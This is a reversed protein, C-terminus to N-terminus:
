KLRVVWGVHEDAAKKHLAIARSKDGLAVYILSLEWPSVFSSTDNQQLRRLIRIAEARDGSLAYAQVLDSM